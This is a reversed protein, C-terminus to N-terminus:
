DRSVEIHEQVKIVLSDLARRSAEAERDLKRLAQLSSGSM